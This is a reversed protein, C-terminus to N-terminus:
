FNILIVHKQLEELTQKYTENPVTKGSSVIKKLKSQLIDVKIMLTDRVVQSERTLTSLSSATREWVVIERRLDRVEQTEDTRLEQMDNYVWRLYFCTQIFALIVGVTM